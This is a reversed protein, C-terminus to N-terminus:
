AGPPHLPGPLPCPSRPPCLLDARASWRRFASPLPFRVEIYAVKTVHDRHKRFRRIRRGKVGHLSFFDGVSWTRAPFECITVAGADDGVFLLERGGGEGVGDENDASGASGHAVPAPKALYAYELCLPSAQHFERQHIRGYVKKYENGMDVLTICSKLSAIALKGSQSMHAVDTIWDESGDTTTHLTCQLELTTPSWLRVTGERSWSVFASLSPFYDMGVQTEARLLRETYAAGDEMAECPLLKFLPENAGEGGFLTDQQSFFLYDVFEDWTLDGDSNADIKMFLQQMTARSFSSGLVQSVLAVFTREDVKSRGELRRFLRRFSRLQELTVSQRSFFARERTAAEDGGGSHEGRGSTQGSGAGRAVNGSARGADRM